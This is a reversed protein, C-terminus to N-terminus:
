LIAHRSPALNGYRSSLCELNPQWHVLDSATAELFLGQQQRTIM